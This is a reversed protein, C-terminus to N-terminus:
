KKQAYCIINAFLFFYLTLYGTSLYFLYPWKADVVLCLAKAKQLKRKKGTLYQSYYFGCMQPVICMFGKM